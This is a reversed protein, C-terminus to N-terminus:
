DQDETAHSGLYRRVSYPKEHWGTNKSLLEALLGTAVFQVGVILLLIGLFLLPRQGIPGHGMFWLVTLYLCCVFGIASFLLGIRGFYHAPRREYRMLFTVTLLDMLGEYFRGVGFKSQGHRRPHHNVVVEAIRFRRWHAIVPIFRHLSGYIRIEDIIERRYCKFGCNVDHLDIGAVFRVIANFLRSPYVKHWPDLRVKKYGSVLDFGQDLMDLFKPIDQPDDQLDADM